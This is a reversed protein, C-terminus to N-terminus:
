LWNASRHRKGDYFAITRPHLTGVVGPGDSDADPHVLRRQLPHRLRPLSFCAWQRLDRKQADRRGVPAKDQLAEYFVLTQAELHSIGGPSELPWRRQEVFACGRAARLGKAGQCVLLDMRGVATEQRVGERGRLRGPVPLRAESAKQRLRYSGKM